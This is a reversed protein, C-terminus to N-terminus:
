ALHAHVRLRRERLDRDADASPEEGDVDDTESLAPTEDACTDEAAVLEPSGSVFPEGSAEARAAPVTGARQGVLRSLTEDLTAIRDIMGLALAEKAHVVRGEGFGTRVADVSM